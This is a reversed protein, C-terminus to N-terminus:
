CSRRTTAGKPIVIVTYLKTGDRMPIMVERKVYDARAPGASHVQDAHRQRQSADMPAEQALAPTLALAVFPLLALKRIM